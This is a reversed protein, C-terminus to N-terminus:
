ARSFRRTPIRTRLRAPVPIFPWGLEPRPPFASPNTVVRTHSLKTRAQPAATRIEAREPTSPSTKRRAAPRRVRPHRPLHVTAPATDAAPRPTPLSGARWCAFITDLSTTLRRLSCWFLIIFPVAARNRWGLAALSKLLGSVILALHTNLM